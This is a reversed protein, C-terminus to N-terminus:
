TIKNEDPLIGKTTCKYGLFRVKHMCFSCKEPHLKLNHKRRPNFATTLNKIMHNDTCGVVVRCTSSSELGSFALTM